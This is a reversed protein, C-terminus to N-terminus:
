NTNDINRVTIPCYTLLKEHRMGAFERKTPNAIMGQIRGAERVRKVDQRTYGEFDERVTNILMLEMSSSPDSVDHYHLRHSSPKFEM